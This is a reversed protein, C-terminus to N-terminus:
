DGNIKETAQRIYNQMEEKVRQGAKSLFFTKGLSPAKPKLRSYVIKIVESRIKVALCDSNDKCM